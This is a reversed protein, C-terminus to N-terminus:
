HGGCRCTEYHVPDHSNFITVEDSTSRLKM